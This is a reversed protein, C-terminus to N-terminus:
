ALEKLFRRIAGNFAEPQEWNVFRGGGEIRPAERFSKMAVLREPQDPFPDQTGCVGLVPIDLSQFHALLQPVSSAMELMGHRYEQAPHSALLQIARERLPSGEAPIVQFMSKGGHERLLSVLGERGNAELAQAARLGSTEWRTLYQRADHMESWAAIVLARVRDPYDIAFNAAITTGFALAVIIPRRMGFHDLLQALDHSQNAVSFGFATLQTGAHGRRDYLLCRHDRSFEEVQHEWYASGHIEGHIFVMDPGDGKLEYNFDCGNVNVTPM